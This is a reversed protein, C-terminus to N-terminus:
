KTSWYRLNHNSKEFPITLIIPGDAYSAVEYQNYVLQIGNETYGINDPLHFSDGDFMFGTSNINANQPINEQQRLQKEAVNQFEGLDKFLQHNELEVGKKKDFNLFVTSGYGHAGGTFNYSNLKISILRADEYTINGQITAEWGVTEDPFKNQLEQYSETFSSMAQEISTVEQTEEFKLIYILEEKLTSNIRRGVPSEDLANPIDIEIKPCSECTKNKLQLREFTLKHEKTCGINVLVLFTLIRIRKM